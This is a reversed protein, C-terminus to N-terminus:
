GFLLHYEDLLDEAENEPLDLEEIMLDMAMEDFIEDLENENEM